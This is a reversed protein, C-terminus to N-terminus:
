NRELDKILKEINYKYRTRKKEQGIIVGNDKIWNLPYSKRETTNKYEILTNIHVLITEETDRFNFVVAPIVNEKGTEKELDRYQNKRIRDFPISKGKTSKLELLLLTKGTFAIYDCMNSITFRTEKAKGWGGADKLKYIFLKKSFSNKFDEEFKKGSLTDRRVELSITIIRFIRNHGCNKRIM